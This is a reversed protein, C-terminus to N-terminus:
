ILGANLSFSGFNLISIRRFSDLVISGRHNSNKSFNSCSLPSVPKKTPWEILTASKATHRKHAQIEPPIM